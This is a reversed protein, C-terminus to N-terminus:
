IKTINYVDNFFISCEIFIYESLDHHSSFTHLNLLDIIEAHSANNPKKM